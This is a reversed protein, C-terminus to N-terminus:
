HYFFFHRYIPYIPFDQRHFSHRAKWSFTKHLVKFTQNKNDELMKNQLIQSKRGCLFTLTNQEIDNQGQTTLKCCWPAHQKRTGTPAALSHVWRVGEATDCSHHKCPGWRTLSQPSGGKGTVTRSDWCATLGSAAEWHTRLEKQCM